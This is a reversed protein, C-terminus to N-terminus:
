KLISSINKAVIVGDNFISKNKKILGEKKDLIRNIELFLGELDSNKEIINIIKQYIETFVGLQLNNFEYEIFTFDTNEIIKGKENMYNILNFYYNFVLTNLDIVLDIEGEEVPDILTQCFNERSNLSTYSIYKKLTNNSYTTQSSNFTVSRIKSLQSEAKEVTSKKRYGNTGKAEILVASSGGELIGCLDPTQYLGLRTGSQNEITNTNRDYNLLDSRSLHFLFRIGLQEHVIFQTFIMGLHYFLSASESQELYKNNIHILHNNDDIGVFAKILSEKYHILLHPYYNPEQNGGVVVAARLLNTKDCNIDTFTRRKAGYYEMTDNYYKYYMNIM